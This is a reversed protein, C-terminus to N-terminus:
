GLATKPRFMFFANSCTQEMSTERAPTSWKKNKLIAFYPYTTDLSGLCESLILYLEITLVYFGDPFAKGPPENYDWPLVNPFPLLM